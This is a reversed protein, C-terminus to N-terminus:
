RDWRTFEGLDINSLDTTDTIDTHSEAWYHYNGEAGYVRFELKRPIPFVPLMVSWVASGDGRSQLYNIDTAGDVKEGDPKKDADEAYFIINSTYMSPQEGGPLLVKITGSLTLAEFDIRQYDSFIFEKDNDNVSYAANTVLEKRFEGGNKLALVSFLLPPTDSDPKLINASWDGNTRIDADCFYSGDPYVISMRALEVRAIEYPDPIPNNNLTVGNVTVRLNGSIRVIDYNIYGLDINSDADDVRISGTTKQPTVDVDDMSCGVTFYLARHLGSSPIEMAWQYKGDGLWTLPNGTSNSAIGIYNARRADSLSTYAVVYPLSYPEYREPWREPDSNDFPCDELNWFAGNRTITVVGQITVDENPSPESFACAAFLYVVVLAFLAPRFIKNMGM